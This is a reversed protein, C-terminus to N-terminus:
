DDCAHSIHSIAFLEVGSRRPNEMDGGFLEAIVNDEVGEWPKAQPLLMMDVLCCVISKVAPRPFNPVRRQPVAPDCIHADTALLPHPYGCGFDAQQPVGGFGRLFVRKRLKRLRGKRAATGAAISFDGATNGSSKRGTTLSM